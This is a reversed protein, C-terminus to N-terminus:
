RLWGTRSIPRLNSGPAPSHQDKKKGVYILDCHKRAYDLLVPNALRDYVIADAQQLLRMAKVTILEPDGPGAGVLFVEGMSKGTPSKERSSDDRPSEPSAFLNVINTM